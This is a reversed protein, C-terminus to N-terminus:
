CIQACCFQGLNQVIDIGVYVTRKFNVLINVINTQMVNIALQLEFKHLM